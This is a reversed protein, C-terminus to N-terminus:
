ACTPIVKTLLAKRFYGTADIGEVRPPQRVLYLQGDKLLQDGETLDPADAYEYEIEYDSSQVGTMPNVDPQCWDVDLEFPVGRNAYLVQVTLLM